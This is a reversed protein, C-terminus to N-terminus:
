VPNLRCYFALAEADGAEREREHLFRDVEDRGPVSDQAGLRTCTLAAAASARRLAAELSLGQHFAAVLAGCFTDGAATSDVASINFGPQLLFQGGNRMVCGRAGLTVVVCPVHLRALAQGVDGSCGTIAALEGENVILVDVLDLLAPPLARAPAANLVVRVGAARAAGAYATVTEIPTELQLLLHSVGDLSPLHQPALCANAGPAVTIANQADDTLCVFASGTAIEPERLIDMQVGAASLSQEIVGAAADEGLALLMRVPVGGARAGAVAQNAGKGGAFTRVDRGLVTEGAAPVHAARVVFDLNASGAVLITQHESM